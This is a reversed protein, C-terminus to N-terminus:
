TGKLTGKNVVGVKLGSKVGGGVIFGNQRRGAQRCVIDPSTTNAPVWVRNHFVKTM